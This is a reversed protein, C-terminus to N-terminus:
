VEFRVVTVEDFDSVRRSYCQELEQRLQEISSFGDNIADQVTLGKFRMHRLETIVPTYESLLGDCTFDFGTLPYDKRGLRITTRKGSRILEFNKATFDIAQKEEQEMQTESEASLVTQTEFHGNDSLCLQKIAKDLDVRNCDCPWTGVEGPVPSSIFGKGKCVLCDPHGSM